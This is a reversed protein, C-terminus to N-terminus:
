RCDVCTIKRPPKIGLMVQFKTMVVIVKKKCKQCTRKPLKNM